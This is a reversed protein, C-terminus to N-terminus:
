KKHHHVVHHAVGSYNDCYFNHINISSSALSLVTALITVAIM